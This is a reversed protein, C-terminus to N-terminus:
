QREQSERERQARRTSYTLPSNKAVPVVAVPDTPPKLVVDDYVSCPVSDASSVSSVSSVDSQMSAVSSSVSEDDAGDEIALTADSEVLAGGHWKGGKIISGSADFLIGFGHPFGYEHRGVYRDGNPMIETGTGHKLNRQFGGRYLSGCAAVFAANSGHMEGSKFPGVYMDGNEFNLTGFGHPVTGSVAVGSYLGKRPRPSVITWRINNVMSLASDRHKSRPKSKAGSISRHSPSSRKSYSKSDRSRSVGSRRSKRAKHSKSECHHLAYDVSELLLSNAALEKFLKKRERILLSFKVEAAQGSEETGTLCNMNASPASPANLIDPNSTDQCQPPVEDEEASWSKTLSYGAIQEKPAKEEGNFSVAPASTSAMDPIIGSGLDSNADNEETLGSPVYSSGVIGDGDETATPEDALCTSTNGQTTFSDNQSEGGLAM